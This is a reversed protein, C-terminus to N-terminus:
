AKFSRDPAAGISLYAYTPFRDIASFQARRTRPCARSRAPRCEYMRVNEQVCARGCVCVNRTCACLGTSASLCTRSIRSIRRVLIDRIQSRICIVLRTMETCGISRICLGPTPRHVVGANASACGRRQGICLGPTPRHVVGANASACGRRQCPGHNLIRRDNAVSTMALVAGRDTRLPQPSEM